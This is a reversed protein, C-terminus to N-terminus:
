DVNVIYSPSFYSYTPRNNVRRYDSRGFQWRVFVRNIDISPFLLSFYFVSFAFFFYYRHSFITCTDFRASRLTSCCTSYVQYSRSSLRVRVHLIKHRSVRVVPPVDGAVAILWSIHFDFDLSPRPPSPRAM